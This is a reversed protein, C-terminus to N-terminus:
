YVKSISHEIFKYSLEFLEETTSELCSYLEEVSLGLFTNYYKDHLSQYPTTFRTDRYLVYITIIYFFESDKSIFKPKHTCLKSKSDLVPKIIKCENETFYKEVECYPMELM